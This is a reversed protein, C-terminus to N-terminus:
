TDPPLPAQPLDGHLNTDASFLQIEQPHKNDLLVFDEKTLGSIPNGHKDNVIVNIQVLRTTVRLPALLGGNQAAPTTDKHSQQQSSEQVSAPASQGASATQAAALALLLFLGASSVTSFLVRV